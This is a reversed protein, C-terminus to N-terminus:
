TQSLVEDNPRVSPKDAVYNQMALSILEAAEQAIITDDSKFHHERKCQTILSFPNFL